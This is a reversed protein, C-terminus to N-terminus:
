WKHGEQFTTDTLLHVSVYGAPLRQVEATQDIMELEPTVEHRFKTQHFVSICKLDKSDSMRQTIFITMECKSPRDIPLVDEAQSPIIKTGLANGKVKVPCGYLNIIKMFSSKGQSTIGTNFLVCCCPRGNFAFFDFSVRAICNFLLIFCTGRLSVSVIRKM